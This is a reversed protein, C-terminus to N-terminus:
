ETVYPVREGQLVIQLARSNCTPTPVTRRM